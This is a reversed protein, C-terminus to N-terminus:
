SLLKVIYASCVSATCKKKLALVTIEHTKTDQQHQVIKPNAKNETSSAASSYRPFILVTKGPSPMGRKSTRTNPM